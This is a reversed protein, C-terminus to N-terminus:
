AGMALPMDDVSTFTLKLGRPACIRLTLHKDHPTQPCERPSRSHSVVPHSGKEALRRGGTAAAIRALVVVGAVVVIGKFEMRGAAVSVRFLRSKFSSRDVELLLLELLLSSLRRFRCLRLCRDDLRLLLCLCLCLSDLRRRRSRDSDGGRRVDCLFCLRDLLSSRYGYCYPTNIPKKTGM